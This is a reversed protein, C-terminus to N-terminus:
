NLGAEFVTKCVNEIRFREPKVLHAIFDIDCEHAASLNSCLVVRVVVVVRVVAFANILTGSPSPAAKQVCSSAM